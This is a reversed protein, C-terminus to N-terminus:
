KGNLQQGAKVTLRLRFLINSFYNIRNANINFFFGVREYINKCSNTLNIKVTANNSISSKEAIPFKSGEECKTM